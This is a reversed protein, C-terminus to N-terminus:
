LIKYILKKLCRQEAEPSYKKYIKKRQKKFEAYNIENKIFKLIENIYLDLNGYPIGTFMPKKWYEKGGEGTYGIVKNGEKAAELPPLRIRGYTFLIFINQNKLINYLDNENSINDLEKIKWKKPM